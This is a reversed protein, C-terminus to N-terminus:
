EITHSDALLEACHECGHAACHALQARQGAAYADAIAERTWYANADGIPGIGSDMWRKHIARCTPNMDDLALM